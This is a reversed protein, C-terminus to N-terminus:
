DIKFLTPEQYRASATAQSAPRRDDQLEFLTLQPKRQVAIQELRMRRTEKWEYVKGDIEITRV